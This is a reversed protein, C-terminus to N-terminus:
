KFAMERTMIANYFGFNLREKKCIKEILSPIHNSIIDRHKTSSIPEDVFYSSEDLAFIYALQSHSMKLEKLLYKTTLKFNSYLYSAYISCRSLKIMEEEDIKDTKIIKWPPKKEYVFSFKGANDFFYTGPLVLLRFCALTTPAMEVSDDISKLFSEKTDSPLGLIIQLESKIGERNLNNIGQKVLNINTPRGSLKLVEENTSQLGVEVDVINAKKLFFAMEEDIEEARVETHIQKLYFNNECIFSCIKQARKKNSTFDPDMLYIKECPSEKLAYNLFDFVKKESFERIKNRGKSYFCFKCKYRCGRMTEVPLVKFNKEGIFNLNKFPNEIKDLPDIVERRFNEYVVGNERYCIGKVQSLPKGNKLASILEKLTLEGEDCVIFDCEKIEELVSKARPSVEPGGFVIKSSSRVRKIIESLTKVIKINWVYVSFGILDFDYSLIKEAMFEVSSEFNFNFLLPPKFNESILSSQLYLPALPLYDSSASIAVLASKM